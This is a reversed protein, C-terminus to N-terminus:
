ADLAGEAIKLERKLEEVKRLKGLKRKEEIEAILDKIRKSFFEPGGCLKVGSEILNQDQAKELESIVFAVAEDRTGFLWARSRSGSDDSYYGLYSEFRPTKNWTAARFSLLALEKENTGFAKDLELIRFHYNRTVVWNFEGEIYRIVEALGEYKKAKEKIENQRKQADLEAQRIRELSQIEKERIKRQAQIELELIRAGVDIPEKTIRNNYVPITIEITEFSGDGYVDQESTISIVSEKEDIQALFTAPCNNYFCHEGAKFPIKKSDVPSM